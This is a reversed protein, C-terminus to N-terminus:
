RQGLQNLAKGLLDGVDAMVAVGSKSAERSTFVGASGHVGAVTFTPMLLANGVLTGISDFARVIIAAGVLATEDGFALYARSNSKGLPLTLVEVDSPVQLPLASGNPLVDMTGSASGIQDLNVSIELLSLGSAQESVNIRGYETQIDRPDLIPLSLAPFDFGYTDLSFEIEAFTDGNELRTTASVDQILNGPNFKGCGSVVIPILLLPLLVSLDPGPKTETQSTQYQM